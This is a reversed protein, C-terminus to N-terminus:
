HPVYLTSGTRQKRVDKLAAGIEFESPGGRRLIRQHLYKMTSQLMTHATAVPLDGNKYRYALEATADYYLKWDRKTGARVIEAEIRPITLEALNKKKRRLPSDDAIEYVEVDDFTGVHRYEGSRAKAETREIISPNAKARRMFAHTGDIAFARKSGKLPNKEWEHKLRVGEIRPAKAKRASM